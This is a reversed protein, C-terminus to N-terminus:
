LTPWHHLKMYTDHPADGANRLVEHALLLIGRADNHENLRDAFMTGSGWSIFGPSEPIWKGDGAHAKTCSSVHPHILYSDGWDLVAKPTSHLGWVQGGVIKYPGMPYVEGEYEVEFAPMFRAMPLEETPEVKWALPKRCKLCDDLMLRDAVYEAGCECRVHPYKERGHPRRLECCTGECLLGFGGLFWDMPTNVFGSGNRGFKASGCQSCPIVSTLLATTGKGKCTPCQIVHGPTGQVPPCGALIDGPKLIIDGLSSGEPLPQNNVYWSGIRKILFDPKDMREILEVLQIGGDVKLKRPMCATILVTIVSEDTATFPQDPKTNSPHLITM